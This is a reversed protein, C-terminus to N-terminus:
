AVGPAGHQARAGGVDEALREVDSLQEEFEVCVHPELGQGFLHLRRTQHIALGPKVVKVPKRPADLLQSRQRHPRM